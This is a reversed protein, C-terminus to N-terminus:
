RPNKWYKWDVGYNDTYLIYNNIVAAMYKGDPSISVDKAIDGISTTITQEETFMPNNYVIKYINNFDDNIESKISIYYNRSTGYKILSTNELKKNFFLKYEHYPNVNLAYQLDPSNINTLTDIIQYPRMFDLKYGYFKDLCLTIDGQSTPITRKDIKKILLTIHRGNKDAEIEVIDDDCCFYNKYKASFSTPCPSSDCPAETENYLSSNPEPTPTCTLDDVKYDDTNCIFNSYNTNYIGCSTCDQSKSIGDVQQIRINNIENSYNFLNNNNSDAILINLKTHYTRLDKYAYILHPNNTISIPNSIKYNNDGVCYNEEVQNFIHKNYFYDLSIYRINMINQENNESKIVKGYINYNSLGYYSIYDGSNNFPDSLTIPSILLGVVESIVDVQDFYIKPDFNGILQVLENINSYYVKNGNKDIYYYKMSERIYYIVYSGDSRQDICIDKIQNEHTKLTNYISNFSLYDWSFGYDLSILIKESSKVLVVQFKKDNSVLIKKFFKNSLNLGEIRSRNYQLISNCSSTNSPTCVFKEEYM